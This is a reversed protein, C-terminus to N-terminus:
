FSWRLGIRMQRPAALAGATEFPLTVTGTQTSVDTGPVRTLVSTIDSSNMVNEIDFYIGVRDDGFRFSKEIRLDLLSATDLRRSGLPELYPRRYATPM